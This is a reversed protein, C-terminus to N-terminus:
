LIKRVIDALEKVPLGVVAFWDGHIKTIFQGALGQLAYGGAKDYPEKTRVYQDIQVKDVDDFTVKAKGYSLLTEKKYHVAIGTYVSHTRGSLQELFFRAEEMDKPKGIIKNDLSVFTDAGIVICKEDCNKAVDEAKRKALEKCLMLPTLKQGINEDVKSVIKVFKVGLMQLIRERRVSASAM